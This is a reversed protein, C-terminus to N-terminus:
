PQIGWERLAQLACLALKAKADNGSAAKLDVGDVTPPVFLAYGRAQFEERFAHAFDKGGALDLPVNSDLALLKRKATGAM